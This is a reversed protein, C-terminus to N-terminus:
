VIEFSKTTSTSLNAATEKSQPQLRVQQLFIQKQKKKVSLFVCLFSQLTKALSWSRGPVKNYLSSCDWSKIGAITNPPWHKSFHTTNLFLKNNSRNIFSSTSTYIEISLDSHQRLGCFKWKNTAVLAKAKQTTVALLFLICSSRIKVFSRSKCGNCPFSM